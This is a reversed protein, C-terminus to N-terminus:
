PQSVVVGGAGDPVRAVLHQKGGTRLKLLRAGVYRELEGIDVKGDANADALGDLGEILARTFASRRFRNGGRTEEKTRTAGFIAPGHKPWREDILAGTYCTDLLVIVHGPISQSARRLEEGSIMTKRWLKDDYRAPALYFGIPPDNGGHGSYYVVVVDNVTSTRRLWNLGELFSQRDAQEDRLLRIEVREFLRAGAKEITRAFERADKVAYNLRYGGPYSDVGAALIRLVPRPPTPLESRHAGTEDHSAAFSLGFVLLLFLIRRVV